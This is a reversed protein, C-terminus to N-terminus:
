TLPSPQTLGDVKRVKGTGGMGIWGSEGLSGVWMDTWGGVMMDIWGKRVRM